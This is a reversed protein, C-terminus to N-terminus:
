VGDFYEEKYAKYRRVFEAVDDKHIRVNHYDRPDGKFRLGEGLNPAGHVGDIARSAYQCQEGCQEIAIKGFRVFGDADSKDREHSM